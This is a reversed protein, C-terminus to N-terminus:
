RMYMAACGTTHCQHIKQMIFGSLKLVLDTTFFAFEMMMDLIYESM